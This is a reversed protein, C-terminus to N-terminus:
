IIKNKLFSNFIVEDEDPEIGSDQDEFDDNNIEEEDM